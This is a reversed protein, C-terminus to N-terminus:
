VSRVIMSPINKDILSLISQNYFTIQMKYTNNGDVKVIRYEFHYKTPDATISYRLGEQDKKSSNIQLCHDFSCSQTNFQELFRKNVGSSVKTFLTLGKNQSVVQETEFSNVEVLCEPKGEFILEYQYFLPNKHTIIDQLKIKQSKFGNFLNLMHAQLSLSIIFTIFFTVVGCRKM